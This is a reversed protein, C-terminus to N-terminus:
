FLGYIQSNSRTQSAEYVEAVPYASIVNVFGGVHDEDPHTNLIGDVKQIGRYRLYTVVQLYRDPGRTGKGADVILIQGRPSELVVANGHGVALFTLRLPHPSVAGVLLVSVAVLIFVASLGTVWR